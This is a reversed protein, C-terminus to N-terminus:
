EKEWETMLSKGLIVKHVSKISYSWHAIRSYERISHLMFLNEKFEPFLFDQQDVIEVKPQSMMQSIPDEFTIRIKILRFKMIIVFKILFLSIASLKLLASYLASIWNAFM